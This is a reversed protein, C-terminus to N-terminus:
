PRAGTNAAARDQAARALFLTQTPFAFSVGAEAFRDHIDLYIAQQIDMYLNYDSSLVQFVTEFDISSSSYAKLHSRDFRTQDQATVADKLMAPIAGLLERSTDYTVGITFVVRREQMKQYNRVRADLLDSNSFVLQEGSLSRVRTTKLGINAVTGAMDGVVIFDGIVFPKDLVISLSGFLDGLIKQLALAIAVGGIGLTTILARVEFGLNDLGILLLISYFVLRSLYGLAALTTASAGDAELRRETQHRVFSAIIVNGWIAVQLTVLLVGLIRLAYAAAPVLTLSHAGAYLSVFLIFFVKTRRVVDAAIDDVYTRSRQSLRVVQRLMVWRLAQLGVFTILVIALAISWQRATIGFFTLELFERMRDTLM